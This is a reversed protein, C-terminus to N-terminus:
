APNPVSTPPDSQDLRSELSEVLADIPQGAAEALADLEHPAFLRGTQIRQDLDIGEVEAFVLLHMIARLHWEITATAHSRGRVQSLVYVMPDFLPMGDVRRLLFPLREGSAAVIAKTRYPNDVTSTSSKTLRERM